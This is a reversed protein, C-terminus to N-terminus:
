STEYRCRKRKIGPMDNITRPLAAELLLKVAVMMSKGMSGEVRVIEQNPSLLQIKKPPM